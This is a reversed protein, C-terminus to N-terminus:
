RSAGPARAPPEILVLAIVLDRVRRQLEENSLRSLKAPYLARYSLSADILEARCLADAAVTLRGITLENGSAWIQPVARGEICEGYASLHRGPGGYTSRRTAGGAAPSRLFVARGGVGRRAPRANAQGGPTNSVVANALM